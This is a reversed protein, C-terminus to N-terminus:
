KLYESYCKEAMHINWHIGQHASVGNPDEKSIVRDAAHHFLPHDLYETHCSINKKSDLESMDNMFFFGSTHNNLISHIRTSAFMTEWGTWIFKIGAEKCYKDFINIMCYTDFIQDEVSNVENFDHPAKSILKTNNKLISSNFVTAVKIGTSSTFNVEPVSFHESRRLPFCGFVAKPKGFQEIYAIAKFISGKASDGNLGLNVVNSKHLKALQSPWTFEEPLGYGYTQSCGIAIFDEDGKVDPGRFGINNFKYEIDIKKGLIEYQHKSKDRFENNKSVIRLTEQESKNLFNKIYPSHLIKENVGFEFEDVGEDENNGIYDGYRSRNILSRFASLAVYIMPDSNWSASISDKKNLDV